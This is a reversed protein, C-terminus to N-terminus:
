LLGARLFQLFARVTYTFGHEKAARDMIGRRSSSSTGLILKWGDPLWHAEAAAMLARSHELRITRPLPHLHKGTQSTRRLGSHLWGAGKVHLHLGLGM